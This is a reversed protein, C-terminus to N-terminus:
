CTASNNGGEGAAESEGGDAGGGHVLPLLSVLHTAKGAAPRVKQSLGFGPVWLVEQSDALVPFLRLALIENLAPLLRRAGAFLTKNAHLYQKLRVPRDM